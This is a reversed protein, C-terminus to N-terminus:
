DLDASTDYWAVSPCQSYEEKLEPNFVTRVDFTVLQLLDECLTPDGGDEMYATVLDKLQSSFTDFDM